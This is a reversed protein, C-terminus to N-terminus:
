RWTVPLPSVKSLQAMLQVVAGLLLSEFSGIVRRIRFGVTPRVRSCPGRASRM